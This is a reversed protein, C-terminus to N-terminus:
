GETSIASRKQNRWLTSALICIAAAGVLPVLMGLRVSLHQSLQGVMWPFSMGGLLAISFLLGFVTGAMKRYSDGAIALVTPFIGAYSLGLLVVGAVFPILSQALLLIGSGVVAGIASGLVMQPKGVRALLRAALLRGGMLAAWYAALVLTAVRSGLQATGAYTSTWGGISAENGSQCFLLFALLMVGPYRAVQVADRLSFRQSSAAPPFTMASFALACVAAPAACFFLLHVITLHGLIVAALLPICLAGVGYFVGLLNLM